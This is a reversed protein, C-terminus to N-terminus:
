RPPDCPDGLGAERAAGRARGAGCGCHSPGAGGDGRIPARCKRDRGRGGPFHLGLGGAALGADEAPTEEGPLSRRRREARATVGVEREASPQIRRRQSPVLPGAWVRRGRPGCLPPLASARRTRPARPARPRWTSGPGVLPKRFGPRRGWSM